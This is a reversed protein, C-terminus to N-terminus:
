VELRWVGGSGARADLGGRERMEFEGFDCVYLAGDPAFRVDIPRNFGSAFPHMTWDSPDVRVLSRGVRPGSPATMPREDGFLAVILQGAIDGAAPPAVDLKTAASNIPLEMLPREPSPLDAHDALLFSPQEGRTPRFRPDTVPVGGVYDPWGYWAGERVEFVLEPVNGIPRSGRDDSGQDTAILRGDPLFALGYANRLGWAVLELGSGDPECRMVAATCPLGAPLRTGAPHSSGFGSFAGTSVRGGAEVTPDDTEVTVGTLTVPLGPIDHPHPLRRLWGLDYADLGVIGLNTLAGQGFYLKGDPGVAVMNTHYNGPGPLGDLVTEVRGDDHLRLIYGIEGGSVYLAGDHRTLGNVPPLLDSTLLHRSGDADVRWVRGGRPAGGFPLGSEAVWLEGSEGIAISTPFSFGDAVLARVGDGVASATTM